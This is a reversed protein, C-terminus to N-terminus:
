NDERHPKLFYALLVASGLGALLGTLHAANAMRGFGLSATIDTFGLLLWVLMFGMLAPPFGYAQRPRMRDWLWCYGLIGYVVGSMGGFNSGTLSYQAVNSIAAYGLVLGLMLLSSNRSEIKQGFVWLLLLNFTLHMLSFHLFIPTILRWYEHSEILYAPSGVRLWGYVTENLTTAMLLTVLLSALILSAVVPAARLSYYIRRGSFSDYFSLPERQLASRQAALEGQSFHQYASRAQEIQEDRAVWLVQQGAQESIRHPIDQAWLYRSLQRLDEDASLVLVRKM